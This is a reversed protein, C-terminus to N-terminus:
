HMLPLQRPALLTVRVHCFRQLVFPRSQWDVQWVTNAPQQHVLQAMLEVARGAPGAAKQYDGQLFYVDSLDSMFVGYDLTARQDAPDAAYQSEYFPKAKLLTAAAAAWEQLDRLADGTKRLFTAQFRQSVPRKWADLALGDFASSAKLFADLATEPDSSRVLDGLKMEFLAIGRRARM